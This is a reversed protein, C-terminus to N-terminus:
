AYARRAHWQWNCAVVGCGGGGVVVFIIFIVVVIIIVIGNAGL